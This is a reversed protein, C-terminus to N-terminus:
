VWPCTNQILAAAMATIGTIDYVSLAKLVTKACDLRENETQTKCDKIANIIETPNFSSLNLADPLASKDSQFIHQSVEDCVSNLLSKSIESIESSLISAAVEKAAQNIRNQAPVSNKIRMITELGDLLVGKSFTQFSVKAQNFMETVPSSGTLTLVFTILKILGMVFEVTMTYIGSACALSSNACAGIGCNTLGAKGCDRYCLAGSKYEDSHCLILDSFNTISDSIYSRKAYTDCKLLAGEFWCKTCTAGFDTYDKRCHSEWCVGAVFTEDPQCNKYCLALSRFYGSPCDTPIRGADLGSKYCFSPPLVKITAQLCASVYKPITQDDETSLELFSLPNQHSISIFQLSLILYVFSLSIKKYM